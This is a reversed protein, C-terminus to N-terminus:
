KFGGLLLGNIVIISQIKDGIKKHTLHFDRFIPRNEKGRGGLERSKKLLNVIFEKNKKSKITYYLHVIIHFRPIFTFIISLNKFYKFVSLFVNKVYMNVNIVAYKTTSLTTSISNM